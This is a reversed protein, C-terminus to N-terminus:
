FCLEVCIEDCGRWSRSDRQECATGGAGRQRAASPSERWKTAAPGAFRGSTARGRSNPRARSGSGGVGAVQQGARRARPPREQARRTRPGATLALAEQGPASLTRARAIPIQVCSPTALTGVAHSSSSRSHACPTHSPTPKFFSFSFALINVPEVSRARRGLGNPECLTRM